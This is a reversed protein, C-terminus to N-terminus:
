QKNPRTKATEIASSLESVVPDDPSAAKLKALNKEADAARGLQLQAQIAFRLARQDQPNLEGARNLKEAAETYDPPDDLFYTLGLDTLVNPDEPRKTLVKSYYERAMRYGKPDKKLYALDFFLNGATNLIDIDTPGLAAAREVVPKIKLLLDADQKMAAYRYLATGLNKQFQFDDKRSEAENLRAVIEDDTLASQAPPSVDTQAKLGENDARLRELESRDIKSAILFGVILGLLLTLAPIVFRTSWM